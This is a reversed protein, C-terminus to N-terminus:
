GNEFAALAAAVVVEGAEQTFHGAADLVVPEPAGRIMAALHRVAPVGLVPDQAGVVVATKGSWEASLWTRARRLVEAGPDDPSVPVIAPFTRVGARYRHDPFPAEYGALEEDSMGPCARRMLGTISFDPNDRVFRRWAVFGEPLPEDGTALATNMVILRAIRDPMEMPLTLGLLGGWDQCLLTINTLDRQAILELISRRHFDFTYVADDLPKDSRGFGFFDPAVVRGGSALLAAAMKRYLFSWTPEGHLCLYVHEARAPGEDVLHMRLGEFGPLDDVYNPPYDFDPVVIFREEPTRLAEIM